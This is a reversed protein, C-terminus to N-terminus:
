NSELQRPWGLVAKESVLCSESEIGLPFLLCFSLFKEAYGSDIGSKMFIDLLESFM